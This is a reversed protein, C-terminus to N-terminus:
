YAMVALEPADTPTSNVCASTTTVVTLLFMPVVANVLEAWELCVPRTWGVVHYQLM